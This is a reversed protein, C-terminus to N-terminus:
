KIGILPLLGPSISLSLYFLFPPLISESRGRLFGIPFGVFVTMNAVWYWLHMGSLNRLWPFSLAYYGFVVATIFGPVMPSDDVKAVTAALFGAFFVATFFTNLTGNIMYTDMEKVQFVGSSYGILAGIIVAFISWFPSIGLGAHKLFGKPAQRYVICFSILAGLGLIIYRALPIPDSMGETFRIKGVLIVPLTVTVFGLGMPLLLGTDFNHSAAKQKRPKQKETAAKKTTPPLIPNPDAPDDVIPEGEASIDFKLDPDVGLERLYSKSGPQVDQAYAKPAKKPDLQIGAIQTQPKAHQRIDGQMNASTDKLIANLTEEDTEEFAVPLQMRVDFRHQRSKFFLLTEKIAKRPAGQLLLNDSIANLDLVGDPKLYAIHEMFFAVSKPVDVQNSLSSTQLLYRYGDRLLNRFEQPTKLNASANEEENISEESVEIPLDSDYRPNQEGFDVPQPGADAPNTVRSDRAAGQSAASSDGKNSNPPKGTM